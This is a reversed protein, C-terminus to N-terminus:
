REGGATAIQEAVQRPPMNTNQSAKVLLNFAQGSTMQHRHM